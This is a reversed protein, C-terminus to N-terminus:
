KAGYEHVFETLRTLVGPDANAPVGHGLNFIHGDFMSGTEVIDVARQVLVDWPAFLYAPDLNGQVKSAYTVDDKVSSLTRHFDVGLVADGANQSASWKMVQLFEGGGLAFHIRPVNRGDEAEFANISEFVRKSYHAAKEYYEFPGLAGAWSDFLQVVSAGAAIQAALFAGSLAASWGMIRDWLAPDSWALAKTANKDRSPGGEVMYCALTFPAGAFGILPTDGLEKVSHAVAASITSFDVDEVLPLRKADEASRIPSAFVPGVGEKIEVDLGALKLPVVIDSFLIGADVGHRRVPQATLEAVLDPRLCAELMATGERAKRYEPLSRGAQRMYWVPTTDVNEGRAAKVLRSSAANGNLPHHDPLRVTKLEAV